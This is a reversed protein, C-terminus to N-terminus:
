QEKLLDKLAELVKEKPMTEVIKIILKILTKFELKNM